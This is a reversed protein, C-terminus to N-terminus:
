VDRDNAHTASEQLVNTAHGRSRRCNPNIGGDIELVQPALLFDDSNFLGPLANSRESPLEDASRFKWAACPGSLARIGQRYDHLSRDGDDAPRGAHEKSGKMQGVRMVSARRGTAATSSGTRPSRRSTTCRAKRIAPRSVWRVAILAFSIEPGPGPRGRAGGFIMGQVYPGVNLVWPHQTFFDGPLVVPTTLGIDRSQRIM